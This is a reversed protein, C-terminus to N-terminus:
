YPPGMMGVILGLLAIPGGFANMCIPMLVAFSLLLGVAIILVDWLTEKTKEGLRAM